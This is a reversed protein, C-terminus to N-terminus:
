SPVDQIYTRNDLFSGTGHIGGGEAVLLEGSLPIGQKLFVDPGMDVYVFFRVLEYCDVDLSALICDVFAIDRSGVPEYVLVGLGFAADPKPSDARRLGVM